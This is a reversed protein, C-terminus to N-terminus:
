RAWALGRRAHGDPGTGGILGLQVDSARWTLRAVGGGVAPDAFSISGVMRDAFTRPMDAQEAMM